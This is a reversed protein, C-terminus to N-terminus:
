LNGKKKREYKRQWEAGAKFANYAIGCLSDERWDKYAYIHAAEILCLDALKQEKDQNNTEM